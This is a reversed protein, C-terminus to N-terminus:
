FRISSSPGFGTKEILGKQSQIFFSIQFRILSSPGFSTKEILGKQSQIFFSIYFGIFFSPGFSHKRYTLKPPPHSTWKKTTSSFDNQLITKPHTLTPNPNTPSEEHFVLHAQFTENHILLKKHHTTIFLSMVSGGGRQKQSKSIFIKKIDTIFVGSM